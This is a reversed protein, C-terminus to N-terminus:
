PSGDRSRTTTQCRIGGMDTITTSNTGLILM